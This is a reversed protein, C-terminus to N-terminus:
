GIFPNAIRLENFHNPLVLFESRGFAVDHPPVDVLRSFAEAAKVQPSGLLSDQM